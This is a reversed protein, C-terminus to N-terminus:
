RVWHSRAFETEQDRTGAPSGEQLDAGARSGAVSLLCPGPGTHVSPSITVFALPVLLQLFCPTDGGQPKRSPHEQQAQAKSM